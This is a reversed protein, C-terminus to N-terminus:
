LQVFVVTLTCYNTKYCNYSKIGIALLKCQEKFTFISSNYKNILYTTPTTRRKNQIQFQFYNNLLSDNVQFLFYTDRKHTTNQFPVSTFESITPGIGDEFTYPTSSNFARIQWQRSMNCYKVGKPKEAYEWTVNIQHPGNEGRLLEASVNEARPMYCSTNSDSLGKLQVTQELSSSSAFDHVSCKYTGSYSFSCPKITIGCDYINPERQGVNSCFHRFGAWFYLGESNFWFQIDRLPRYEEGM